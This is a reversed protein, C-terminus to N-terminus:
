GEYDDLGLDKLLRKVLQKQATMNNIIGGSETLIIGTFKNKKKTKSWDMAALKNYYAKQSKVPEQSIRECVIALGRLVIAHSSVTDSKIKSADTKGKVVAQWVPMHEYLETWIRKVKQFNDELSQRKDKSGILIDVTKKINTLSFINPDSRTPNSKEMEVIGDFFDVEAVLRRTIIENPMNGMGVLVGGPIKAANRNLDTFIQHMRAINPKLTKKDRVDFFVVAISENRFSESKTETLAKKIGQLRHQGDAVTFKDFNQITLTGISSGAKVPKFDMDSECNATISNFVYGFKSSKNVSELIYDSIEPIRKQNLRRQADQQLDIPGKSDAQAMKRDLYTDFLTPVNRIQVMAVYYVEGGMMGKMADFELKM